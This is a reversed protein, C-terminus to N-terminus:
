SVEFELVLFLFLMFRHRSHMYPIIIGSIYVLLSDSDREHLYVNHSLTQWHSVAPRHNEGPVGTEEALLVSRWLWVSINTLMANFVMVWEGLDALLQNSFICQIIDFIWLYVTMYKDSYRDKAVSIQYM